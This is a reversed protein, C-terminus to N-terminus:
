HEEALVILSDDPGLEVTSSKPPNVFVGFSDGESDALAAVRYGLVVEDRRRGAEVLSAFAVPQHAAAYATAPKLYVESGESDFLDSFVGLLEVNESLQVILLSSLRESVGFRYCLIMVNGYSDEQLLKAVDGHDKGADEFLVSLNSLGPPAEVTDAVVLEPDLAVKAKSGPAVYRDLERLILPGLDNWGLIM